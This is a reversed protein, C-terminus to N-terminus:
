LTQCIHSDATVQPLPIFIELVNSFHPKLVKRCKSSFSPWEHHPHSILMYNFAHLLEKHNLNTEITHICNRLLFYRLSSYSSLSCFWFFHSSVLIPFHTKYISVTWSLLSDSLHQFYKDLFHITKLTAKSTIVCYLSIQPPSFKQPSPPSLKLDLKISHFQVLKIFSISYKFNDSGFFRNLVFQGTNELKKKM